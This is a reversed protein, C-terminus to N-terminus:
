FDPTSGYFPDPFAQSVFFHHAKNEFIRSVLLSRKSNLLGAGASTERLFLFLDTGHPLCALVGEERKPQSNLFAGGVEFEREGVGYRPPAFQTQTPFDPNKRRRRERAIQCLPTLTDVSPPLPSKKGKEIAVCGRTCYLWWVGKRRRRRRRKEMERKM